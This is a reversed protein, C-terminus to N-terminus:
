VSSSSVRVATTSPSVGAFGDAYLIREDLSRFRSDGTVMKVEVGLAMADIDITHKTNDYRRVSTSSTSLSSTLFSSTLARAPDGIAGIVSTDIADQNETHSAYTAIRVM